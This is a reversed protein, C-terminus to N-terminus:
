VKMCFIVTKYRPVYGSITDGFSNGTLNGPIPSTALSSPRMDWKFPYYSNYDVVKENVTVPHGIPNDSLESGPSETLNFPSPDSATGNSFIKPNYAIKSCNHAHREGDDTNIQYHGGSSSHYSAYNLRGINGADGYHYHGLPHDIIHTHSFGVHSHIHPGHYHSGLDHDHEHTHSMSHTHGDYIPYPSENKDSLGHRHIDEGGICGLVTNNIFFTKDTNSLPDLSQFNEYPNNKGGTGIVEEGRICVGRMDHTYLGDFFSNEDDIVTLNDCGKYGPPCTDLGAGDGPLSVQITGAILFVAGAPVL